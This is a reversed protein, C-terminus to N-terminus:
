NNISKLFEGARNNETRITLSKKWCTRAKEKDGKQLHCYGLRNWGIIINPFLKTCSEYLSIGGDWLKKDELLQGADLLIMDNKFDFGTEKLIDNYHQSYYEAGRSSIVDVIKQSVPNVDPSTNQQPAHTMTKNKLVGIMDLAIDDAIINNSNSSVIVCWNKELNFTVNANYVGNGGNHWIWKEDGANQIVWGYGYFSNQQPGEAVHPTFYKETEVKNLIKNSALALYWNLMDNTTSIIGGNARLHWGPGDVAWPKSLASGWRVNDRYGIAFKASDFLPICYGTNNMKCPVFINDHLFKEYGMGSVKEIIIGLMSYGVNSYLSNTGANQKLKSALALTAFQAANITDYDDGLTETFGETHTLLKHLTIDAKDSPVNDFYKSMKDNVSLKGQQELLLIGAATFQKTISGISFFTETTQPRKNERDAFGLAKDYIKEGNSYVLVNGSYNQATYKKMAEDMKTALPQAICLSINIALSFFTLIYRNMM